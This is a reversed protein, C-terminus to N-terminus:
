FLLILSLFLVTMGAENIHVNQNEQPNMSRNTLQGGLGKGRAIVFKVKWDVKLGCFDVLPKSFCANSIMVTDIIMIM